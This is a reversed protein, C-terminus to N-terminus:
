LFRRSNGEESFHQRLRGGVVIVTNGVGRCKSNKHTCVAADVKVNTVMCILSAVLMVRRSLATHRQTLSRGRCLAVLFLFAM